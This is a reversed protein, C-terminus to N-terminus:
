HSKEGQRAQGWAEGGGKCEIYFLELGTSIAKQLELPPDTFLPSDATIRWGAWFWRSGRKKDRGENMGLVLCDKPVEQDWTKGAYM